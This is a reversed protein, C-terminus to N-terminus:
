PKLGHHMREIADRVIRRFRDEDPEIRGALYLSIYGHALAWLEFAVEWPNDARLEGRDIAEAVTDALITLTPSQRGTFDTPFQRAGARRRSFLYEFVLPRSLAYDLYCDVAATLDGCPVRARFLEALRDFEDDTIARLLADRDPFYHYLAMATIGVGKAVRRMTVAPEGETELIELAARRIRALTDHKEM